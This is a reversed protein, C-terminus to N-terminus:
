TPQFHSILTQKQPSSLLYECFDPYKLCLKQIDMEPLAADKLFNVSGVMDKTFTKAAYEKIEYEYLKVDLDKYGFHLAQKLVLVEEFDKEIDSLLLLAESESKMRPLFKVVYSCIEAARRLNTQRSRLIEALFTAILYNLQATFNNEM